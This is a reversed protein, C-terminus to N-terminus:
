AAADMRGFAGGTRAQGFRPPMQPEPKPENARKVIEADIAKTTEREREREEKTDRILVDVRKPDLGGFYRRQFAEIAALDSEGGLSLDLYAKLEAVIALPAPPAYERSYRVVIQERYQRPDGGLLCAARIAHIAVEANELTEALAHGLQHADLNDWELSAGSAVQASDRGRKALGVMEMIRQALWEVHIRKEVAHEVPPSSWTPVGADGKYQHYRRTSWTIEEAANIKGGSVLGPVMLMPAGQQRHLDRLLSLENFVECQADAVDQILPRGMMEDRAHLPRFVVPAFPVFPFTDGDDIVTATDDCVELLYWHGPVWYRALYRPKEHEGKAADGLLGGHAHRHGEYMIAGVLTGEADRQWGLMHQPDCVRSWLPAQAQDGANQYPGRPRDTGAYLCGYVLAWRAAHRMAQDVDHGLGDFDSLRAQLAAPLKREVPKSFVMSVFREVIPECFNLVWAQELRLQFDEIEEREHPILYSGGGVEQQRAKPGADTSILVQRRLRGASSSITGAPPTVYDPGGVYSHRYFWWRHRVSDAVRPAIKYAKGRELVPSVHETSEDM